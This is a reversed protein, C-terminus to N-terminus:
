QDVPRLDSLGGNACFFFAERIIESINGINDLKSKGKERPLFLVPFQVIKYGAKAAGALLEANIFSGESELRLADLKEKRFLKFSFNIDRVRLRLLTGMIFNFAKSYLYRKLGGRKNNLRYASVIDAKEEEMLNLAKRLEGPDCPMDADTYLVAEKAARSFGTRLANGLGRKRRNNVVQLRKEQRSLDRLIGPTADSSNDDVAIVEFDDTFAAAAKTISQITDWVCEEENYIPIVVSLTAIKRM